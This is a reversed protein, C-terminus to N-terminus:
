GTCSDLYFPVMVTAEYYGNVNGGIVTKAVQCSVSGNAGAPIIAKDFIGEVFDAMQLMVSTGTDVPVYVDVMIFGWQRRPERTSGITPQIRETWKISFCAWPTSPMDYPQNEFKVPVAPYEPAFGTQFWDACAARVDNMASM